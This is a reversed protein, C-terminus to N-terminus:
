ELTYWLVEVRRSLEPDGPLPENWGRGEVEIRSPDVKQLDALVRKVDAARRKSLEVAQLTAKRLMPEGGEALFDKKKEGSVHGRLILLSGPSVSLLTKVDALGKLNGKDDMDMTDKNALFQFRISKSLLPDKEIAAKGGSKTPAIAVRDEKFAGSAEMARLHQLDAFRDADPADKLLETGYALIASQYIGGFSGGSDISGSFFALNEALNCPHVKRLEERARGRDWKFAKSLAELHPEPDTRLWRNGELIGEVLGAVMKPNAQAFGKNVVLVDAVVLINNTTALAYAKGGSRSVAETTHPAWGVFGAVGPHGAKLFRLFLEAAAPADDCYVVNVAAPDPAESLDKMAHVPIGAEQVLYRLFFDNELFQVSAVVKGRLDNVKKVDSRVVLADAGRSYGFLVPVTAQFPKGLVALVDVTTATAGLAGSNLRGFAEEESLAIRVKFGHKRAFVSDGNPELGGNAAVLGAYGAYDSLEVDVVGDKPFYTGPAPLSPTADEPAVVEDSPPMEVPAAPAAPVGPASPAPGRGPAPVAGPNAPPAPPAKQNQMWKWGGFGIVGLVALTLVFKGFGTIGGGGSPNGEAM